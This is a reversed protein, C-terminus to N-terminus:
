KPTHPNMGECEKCKEWEQSCTIRSGLRRRPGYGQLGRPKITLGLSPNCYFDYKTIITTVMDRGVYNSAISFDKFKPDFMLPLMMHAM